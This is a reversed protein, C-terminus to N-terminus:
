LFSVIFLYLVSSRLLLIDWLFEVFNCVCARVCKFSFAEGDTDLLLQRRQKLRERLANVTATAAVHKEKLEAVSM